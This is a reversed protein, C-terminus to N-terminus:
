HRLPRQTNETYYGNELVKDAQEKMYVYAGVRENIMRRSRSGELVQANGVYTFHSFYIM